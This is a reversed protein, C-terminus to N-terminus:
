AVRQRRWVHQAVTRAFRHLALAALVIASIGYLFEQSFVPVFMATTAVVLVAALITVWARARVGFWRPQSSARSFALAAVPDHEGHEITRALPGSAVHDKPVVAAEAEPGAGTTEGPAQAHCLWCRSAEPSLRTGCSTCWRM